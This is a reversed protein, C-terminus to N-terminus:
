MTEGSSEGPRVPVAVRVTGSREFKLDLPVTSGAALPAQLLTVMIHPGGPKLAVGSRAPVPVDDLPRMRMVGNAMTTAHISAAGIPTSVSLLRDEGGGNEIDLYVATSPQGAVTARAWAHEINIEPESAASCSSLLLAALAMSKNVSLVGTRNAAEQAVPM